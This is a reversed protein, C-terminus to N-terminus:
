SVLLAILLAVVVLWALIFATAVFPSVMLRHPGGAAPFTPATFSEERHEVWEPEGASPGGPSAASPRAPFRPAPRPAGGQGPGGAV